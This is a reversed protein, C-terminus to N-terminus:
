LHNIEEEGTAVRRGEADFWKCEKCLYHGDSWCEARRDYMTRPTPDYDTCIADPDRNGKVGTGIIVNLSLM